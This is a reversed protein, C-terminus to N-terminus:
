GGCLARKRPTRWARQVTSLEGRSLPPTGWHINFMELVYLSASTASSFCLPMIRSNRIMRAAIVRPYAMSDSLSEERM